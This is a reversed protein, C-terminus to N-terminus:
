RMRWAAAHRAAYADFDEIFVAHLMRLSMVRQVLGHQVTGLEDDRSPPALIKEIHAAVFEPRVVELARVADPSLLARLADGSESGCLAESLLGPARFGQKPRAVIEPPLARALERLLRKEGPAEARLAPPLAAFEEWLGHDMFPCRLEVGSAMSYRDLTRLIYAPLRTHLECWQLRDDLSPSPLQTFPASLRLSGPPQTFLSAALAGATGERLLVGWPFEPRLLSCPVGWARLSAAEAEAEDALEDDDWGDVAPLARLDGGAVYRMYAGFRAHHTYGRFLEDAGEGGMLVKYGLDGAMATLHQFVVDQEFAPDAYEGTWLSGACSELVEDARADFDFCRLRIGLAEAVRRQAASEDYRPDRFTVSFADFPEGTLRALTACVLSSDLGGSLLAGVREGDPIRARVAEDFRASLLAVLADRAVGSDMEAYRLQWYRRPARLRSGDLDVRLLHAPPLASVGVFPTMPDFLHEFLLFHASAQPNLQRTFGPLALLAKIESAFAVGGRYPAVFLPKEGFRDRALILAGEHPVWLACALMGEVREFVEEGWELYGRLLVETDARSTFRHGRAELTERLAAHNYVEGNFVVAAGTVPDVFPQAGGAPDVIALRRCALTVGDISWVGSADPGRHGLLRVARTIAARADDPPLAPGIFGAIGCM